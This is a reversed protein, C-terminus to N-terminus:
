SIECDWTSLLVFYVIQMGLEGREPKLQCECNAFGLVARLGCTFM